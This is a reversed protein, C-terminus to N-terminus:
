KLRKWTYNMDNEGSSKFLRNIVLLPRLLLDPIIEWWKAKTRVFRSAIKLFWTSMVSLVLISASSGLILWLTNQGAIIGLTAFIIVLWGLLSLSGTLMRPFFGLKRSTFMRRRARSEFYEKNFYEVEILGEPSLNVGAKGESKIENIFIDDDGYHLNLSHAFGNHVMFLSKSFGLNNSDGRYCNGGIASSIWTLTKLTFDVKRMSWMFGSERYIPKIPSVVIDAGNAFVSAMSDLWHRSLIRSNSSVILLSDYKAAKVGLYIALKKRSVNRTDDPVKTVYIDPRAYEIQLITDKLIKSVPDCSIIIEKKGDYDQEQLSNVVAILGEPDSDCTVIVSIGDLVKDSKPGTKELRKQRKYPRLLFLLPWLTFLVCVWAIIMFILGSQSFSM